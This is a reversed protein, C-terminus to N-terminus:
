WGGHDYFFDEAEEFSDFEDRYDDYFDEANAYDPIDYDEDEHNETSAANSKTAPKKTPSPIPRDRYDWVQTVKGQLCRADFIRNTGEYWRYLNATLFKGNVTESNHEVKPSPAGLITRGIDSEEM